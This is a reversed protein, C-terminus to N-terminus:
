FKPIRIRQTKKYSSKGLKAYYFTELDIKKIILDSNIFFLNLEIYPYLSDLAFWFWLYKEVKSNETSFSKGTNAEIVIIKNNLIIYSDPIFNIEGLLDEDNMNHRILESKFNKRCFDGYEIPFTEMLKIEAFKILIEHFESPM